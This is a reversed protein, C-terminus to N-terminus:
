KAEDLFKFYQPVFEVAVIEGAFKSGAASPKYTIVSLTEKLKVGCGFEADVQASDFSMLTLNDLSNNRLQLIQEGTKIFYTV